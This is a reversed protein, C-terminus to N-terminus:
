RCHFLRDALELPARRYRRTIYSGISTSTFSAFVTALMEIGTLPLPVSEVDLSARAASRSSITGTVTPMTGSATTPTVPSVAWDFSKLSWIFVTAGSTNPKTRSNANTSISTDNRESTIAAFVITRM